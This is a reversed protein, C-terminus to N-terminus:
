CPVDFWQRHTPTIAGWLRDKRVAVPSAQATQSVAFPIQRLRLGALASRDPALSDLDALLPLDQPIKKQKM